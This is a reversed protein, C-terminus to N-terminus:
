EECTITLIFEGDIAGSLIAEITQKKSGYEDVFQARQTGNACGFSISYDSEATQPLRVISGFTMIVEYRGEEVILYKFAFTKHYIQSTMELGDVVLSLKITLQKDYINEFVSNLEETFSIQSYGIGSGDAGIASYIDSFYDLLNIETKKNSVGGSSNEIKKELENFKTDIFNGLRYGNVRVIEILEVYDESFGVKEDYSYGTNNEGEYYRYFKGDGKANYQISYVGQIQADPTTRFKYIDGVANLNEVNDKTIWENSYIRKGIKYQLFKDSINWAEDGIKISRLAPATENEESSFEIQVVNKPVNWTNGNFTISYMDYAGEVYEDSVEIEVAPMAYVVGNIELSTLLPEGGIINVNGKIAGVEFTGNLLSEQFAQFTTVGLYQSSATQEWRADEVDWVYMVFQYYTTGDENRFETDVYAYDGGNLGDPFVTSNLQELSSFQGKFYNTKESVISQLQEITIRYAKDGSNIVLYDTLAIGSATAVDTFVKGLKSNVVGDLITFKDNTEDHLKEVDEVHQEIKEDLIKDQRKREATEEEIDSEFGSLAEKIAQDRNEAEEQIQANLNQVDSVRAQEEAMIAATLADYQPETIVNDTPVNADQITLPLFGTAKITGNQKIRVTIKSIGAIETLWGGFKLYKIHEDEIDISLLLAPSVKGDPREFIAEVVYNSLDLLKSNDYDEYFSVNLKVANNDGVVINPIQSEILTGDEKFIAKAVLM